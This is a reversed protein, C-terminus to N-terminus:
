LKRFLNDFADVDAVVQYQRVSCYRFIYHISRYSEYYSVLFRRMAKIPVVVDCSVLM